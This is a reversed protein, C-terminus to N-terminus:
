PAAGTPETTIGGKVLGEPREYDVRKISVVGDQITLQEIILPYAFKALERLEAPELDYLPHPAVVIPLDAIHLHKAAAQAHSLFATTIVTSSPM